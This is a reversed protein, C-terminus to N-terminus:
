FEPDKCGSAIADMCNAAEIAAMDLQLSKSSADALLESKQACIAYEDEEASVGDSQPEPDSESHGHPYKLAGMIIYRILWYIGLCIAIILSAAGATFSYFESLTM